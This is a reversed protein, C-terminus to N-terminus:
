LQRSKSNFKTVNFCLIYVLQFPFNCYFLYRPKLLIFRDFALPIGDSRDRLGNAPFFLLNLVISVGRIVDDNPHVCCTSIGGKEERRKFHCATGYYTYFGVM